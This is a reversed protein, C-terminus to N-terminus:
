GFRLKMVYAEWQKKFAALDSTGLVAALTKLGTPDDDVSRRFQHYFKVLLGREQLYYCLYRAQSYNTGPDQRYFQHTTTSCLTAFSPVNGQEIAQQLGRLRWNTRGHIHGDRDGCQEYLSALGENFWAPCKPFNSAVFPHVLEHVLTGGGTSINMVLARHTPSYYGFPTTPRAGFLATANKEYSTKDAFLWIDIIHQPDKAFYDKKLRDVAWKITATARRQVMEPTEDGIVVFPRQLVAHFGEPLTRKLQMMHQAYDADSFGAPRAIPQLRRLDLPMRVVTWRDPQYKLPWLALMDARKMRRYAAAAEAPEHYLVEDRAADYGVILRFHETTNPRADYRTCIITAVGRVLDAHLAAFQGELQAPKAAEVTHWVTGVDFGLRRLARSLDRTYCGRGLQPDLGAANFVDDQTVAHGLKALVMAACAEGCFDPKQRVHPVGDLTVSRYTAAGAAAPLLALLLLTASRTTM